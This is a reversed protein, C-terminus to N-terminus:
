LGSIDFSIEPRIVVAMTPAAMTGSSVPAMAPTPMRKAKM